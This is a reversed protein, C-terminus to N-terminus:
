PITIMNVDRTPANFVAEGTIYIGYDDSDVGDFTLTKFIAGTPAIAM